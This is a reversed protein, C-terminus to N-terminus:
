IILTYSGLFKKTQEGEGSAGLELQKVSSYWESFEGPRYQTPSEAEPFRPNLRLSLSAGLPSAPLWFPAGM